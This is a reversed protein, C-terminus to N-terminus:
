EDDDWEAPLIAIGEKNIPPKYALVSLEAYNLHEARMDFPLGGVDISKVLFINIADNLSLGWRSYVEAARMKVDPYTRTKIEANKSLTATSM